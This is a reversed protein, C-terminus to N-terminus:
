LPIRRDPMESPDRRIGDRIVLPQGRAADPEEAHRRGGAVHDTRVSVVDLDRRAACGAAALRRVREVVDVEHAVRRQARGVPVLPHEAEPASRRLHGHRGVAVNGEVGAAIRRVLDMFRARAYIGAVNQDEDIWVLPQGRHGLARDVVPSWEHRGSAPHEIVDREAHRIDRAEDCAEAAVSRGDQCVQMSEAVRRESGRHDLTGVLDGELQDLTRGTLPALHDAGPAAVPFKGEVIWKAQQGVPTRGNCADVPGGEFEFHFSAQEGPGIREFGPDDICTYDCGTPRTPKFRDKDTNPEIARVGYPVLGGRVDEQFTVPNLVLGPPNAPKMVGTGSDRLAFGRIRQRYEGCRCQCGSDDHDLFTINVKFSGILWNIGPVFQATQHALPPTFPLPCAHDPPKTKTRPLARPITRILQMLWLIFYFFLFAAFMLWIVPNALIGGPHFNAAPDVGDLDLGRGADRFAATSDALDAAPHGWRDEGYSLTGGTAEAVVGALLAGARGVLAEMAPGALSGLPAVVAQAVAAGISALANFAGGILNGLVDIVRQALSQEYDAGVRAAAQEMKASAPAAVEARNRGVGATVVQSLQGTVEGVAGSMRGTASAAAVATRARFAEGMGTLATITATGGTTAQAQGERFLSELTGRGLSLLREAAEALGALIAGFWEAACGVAADLMGVVEGVKAAIGALAQEVRM